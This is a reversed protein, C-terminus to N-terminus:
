MHFKTSQNLFWKTLLFNKRSVNKCSKNNGFVDPGCFFFLPKLNANKEKEKKKERKERM